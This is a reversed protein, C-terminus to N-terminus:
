RKLEKSPTSPPIAFTIARYGFAVPRQFVQDLQVQAGNTRNLALSGTAAAVGEAVAAASVGAAPEGVAGKDKAAAVGAEFGRADSLGRKQKIARTVFVRTILRVQLTNTYRGAKADLVQSNVGFTLLRRAYQDSCYLKTAPAACWADLALLGVSAPAGYTEAVPITIEETDVGNRNAGLSGSAVGLGAKADIAHTITIGPFATLTLAIREDAPGLAEVEVPSTGRHGASNVAGTEAFVPRGQRAATIATRLDIHGVRVAQGLLPKEDTEAVVVWVDGVHFDEQPPYLPLIGLRAISKNWMSAVDESKLEAPHGFPRVVFVIFLGVVAVGAASLFAGRHARLFTGWGPKPADEPPTDM